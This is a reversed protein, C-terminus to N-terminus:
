FKCYLQKIKQAHAKEHKPMRIRFLRVVIDRQVIYDCWFAKNPPMWESAPRGNRESKQTISVPILNDPFYAFNMRKDRSWIEGGYQHAEKLSILQDVGITEMSDIHEGTYSDKWEGSSLLLCNNKKFYSVKTLSTEALVQTFAQQCSWKSNRKPLWASLKFPKVRSSAAEKGQHLSFCPESYCRYEGNEYYGGILDLEEPLEALALGNCNFVLAITLGLRRLVVGIGGRTNLAYWM